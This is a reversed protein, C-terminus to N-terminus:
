ALHSKWSHYLVFFPLDVQHQNTSALRLYLTNIADTYNLANFTQNGSFYGNCVVQDNQAEDEEEESVDEIFLELESDHHNTSGKEFYSNQAIGSNLNKFGFSNQLTAFSLHQFLFAICLLGIFRFNIWKKYQMSKMLHMIIAANEKQM